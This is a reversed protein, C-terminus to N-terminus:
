VFVCLPFLLTQSAINVWYVLLAVTNLFLHMMFSFRQYSERLYQHNGEFYVSVGNTPNTIKSIPLLYSFSVPHNIGPFQFALQDTVRAYSRHLCIVADICLETPIKQRYTYRVMSGEMLLRELSDPYGETGPSEM